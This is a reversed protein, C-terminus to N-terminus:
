TGYIRKRWLFVGWVTVPKQKKVQRSYPSCIMPGSPDRKTNKLLCVWPYLPSYDLNDSVFPTVPNDCALKGFIVGANVSELSSAIFRSMEDM